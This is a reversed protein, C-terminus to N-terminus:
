NSKARDDTKIVTQIERLMADHIHGNTALVQRGEVSITTNNYNTVRGGAEKLILIGAAIDYPQLNNEWFADFRGDAVWCLDLAASGLRRIPLEMKLFHGFIDLPNIDEPFVYPFGTVLFAKHLDAKESVAIRRDNFYAGRGEEAFFLENMMPNYVAGLIVRGEFAVAISVCCLPVHHAFNVTGDIPDIYWQYSAESASNGYEEGVIGHDPFRARIIGTILRESAQDVETVLNNPREKFDVKFSAYFQEHVLAGAQRIADLLVEKLGTNDTM